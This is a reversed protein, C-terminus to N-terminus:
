HASSFARPRRNANIEALYSAHLDPNNHVVKKTAAELKLGKDTEAKIATNWAETASLDGLDADAKPLDPQAKHGGGPAPKKEQEAKLKAQAADAEAKAKALEADKAAIAADQEAKAKDADAQLKAILANQQANWASQAAAVTAGAELQEMLFDASAGKCAQKLEPLTAAVPNETSMRSGKTKAPIMSRLEAVAAEYTRIGDILGLSIGAKASVVGGRSLEKLQAQTLNRARQVVMEFGAQSEDVIAQWMAKVDESIPLGEFGSGKLDGTKILVPVIGDKEAAQSMDYMGFYTGMSGVIAGETNAFVKHSQSGAMLGASAMMDEVFTVTPKAQRLNWIDQTLEMNGAVSGGPTDFVLMVGDVSPDNMAHRIQQRILVTSGADSLSSGQKTMTGRIDIQVLRADQNQSVAAASKVAASKMHSLLDMSTVARWQKMFASEEISWVGLYQEFHASDIGQTMLSRIDLQPLMVAGM